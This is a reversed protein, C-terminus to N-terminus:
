HRIKPAFYSKISEDTIQMGPNVDGDYFWAQHWPGGPAHSLDVLASPRMHIFPMAAEVLFEYENQEFCYTLIHYDGTCLDVAKARSSIPSKNFVKFQHYIERFVPGYQWAEIKADILPKDFKAIYHGHVFYAIKNLALNTLPVGERDAIDLLFNALARPDVM